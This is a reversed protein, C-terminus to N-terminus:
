RIRTWPSGVPEEIKPFPSGAPATYVELMEALERARGRPVILESKGFQASKGFSAFNLNPTGWVFAPVPAPVNPAVVLGCVAALFRRRDM